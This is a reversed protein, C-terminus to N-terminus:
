ASAWKLAPSVNGGKCGFDNFVQPQAITGGPSLDPSTLTFSSMARAEKVALAATAAAVLVATALATGVTWKMTTM